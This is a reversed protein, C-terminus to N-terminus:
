GDSAPGAPPIEPDPQSDAPKDPWNGWRSPLFWRGDADQELRDPPVGEVSYDHVAIRCAGDELRVERITGRDMIITALPPEGHETFRDPISLASGFAAWPDADEGEAAADVFTAGACDDLARWHPDANATAIAKELAEDLTDAEVTVTNAYYAAYGCQVTWATM